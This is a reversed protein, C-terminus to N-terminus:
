RRLKKEKLKGWELYSMRWGKIDKLGILGLAVAQLKAINHITGESDVFGVQQPYSYDGCSHTLEPEDALPFRKWSKTFGWLNEKM